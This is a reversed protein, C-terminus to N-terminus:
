DMFRLEKMDLTGEKSLHLPRIHREGWYSARCRGWYWRGSSSPPRPLCLEWLNVRNFLSGIVHPM